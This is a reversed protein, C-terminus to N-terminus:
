QGGNEGSMLESGAYRERALSHIKCDGTGSIRISYHDTRRPIIPLWVSHKFGPKLRCKIDRWVGDSDVMYEIKVVADKDPEIRLQVSSIGKRNPDGDIWDAFEAYWEYSAEREEPMVDEM